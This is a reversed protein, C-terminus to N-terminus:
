SDAGVFGDFFRVADAAWSSLDERAGGERLAALDSDVDRGGCREVLLVVREDRGVGVEEAGV